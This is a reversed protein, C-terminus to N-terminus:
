REAVTRYHVQLRATIGDRDRGSIGGEAEDLCALDAQPPRTNGRVHPAFDAVGERDSRIGLLDAETQSEAAVFRDQEIERLRRDCTCRAQQWIEDPWQDRRQDFSPL